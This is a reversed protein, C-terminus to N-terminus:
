AASASRRRALRMAAMIAAGCAMSFTSSPEPVIIFATVSGSPVTGGSGFDTATKPLTTVLVNTITPYVASISSYAVGNFTRTGPGSTTKAWFSYDANQVSGLLQADTQTTFFGGEFTDGTVISDVDFYVDVVNASSLSASNFPNVDTLRLVDNLAGSGSVAYNPASATLEFAARLGGTPDFMGATLIGPSNGPSVLGVGAIMAQMVGSGSLTGSSAVTVNSALTGNVLLTGADLLTGGSFTSSGALTLVGGGLKQLLGTGGVTQFTFDAGSAVNVTTNSGLNVDARIGHSGASVTLAAPITGSGVLTVPGSGNSPYIQYSGASSNFTMGALSPTAGNLFIAATGGTLASGFTATDTSSFGADLGPSGQNTGWNLGFANGSTGTLTGWNGSGNTAWTSQGSYVQGSVAVAVNPISGFEAAVVSTYTGNISGLTSGTGTLTYTATQPTTAGLFAASGATLGLAFGSPGGTFSGLTGSATTANLGTSTVGVSTGSVTAGQHLYGLALTSTSTTFVRQDVVQLSGSATSTTTISNTDTNIVSWGQTGASAGTQITGSVTTSAQPAVSNTGSGLNGVTLTGGSSLSIALNSGGVQTSNTISGSVAVTTGVLARTVAGTTMTFTTAQNAKRQADVENANVSGYRILYNSDLGTVTGFTGTLSSGAILRYLSATLATNGLDLTSPAGNLVVSGTASLMLTSTQSITPTLRITGGSGSFALGGISNTFTGTSLVGVGGNGGAFTGGITVLSNSPIANSIGLALTGSSNIYTPGTYSGTTSLTTLGNQVALDSNALTGTIQGTVTIGQAGGWLRLVTGNKTLTGSLTLLGSGANQITDTGNGLANVNKGLTGSVGTYQLIGSSTSAVGLNVTTNTGLSQIATALGVTSIALTGNQVNTTGSYANNGSLTVTQATTKTLGASGSLVSSGSVSGYALQYGNGGTGTTITGSGVIAGATGSNGLTFTPANTGLSENFGALDFTGGVVAVNPSAIANAVGLRLTGGNVNTQGSYTNVVGLVLTGAGTKFLQSGGAITGGITLTKTADVDYTAAANQTIPKTLTLDASANLTTAATFSLPATGSGLSAASSVSLIGGSMTTTGTYTNLGTLTQTGTGSKTLNLSGATGNVLTGAFSSSGSAVNLTLTSVTANGDEVTGSGTLGAITPSFGNLRLTAGSAVSVANSGSPNLANANGLQLVGGNVALGGNFSNSGALVLTGLYEKSLPFTGTIPANITVTGITAANTNVAGVQIALSGSLTPYTGNVVIPQTASDDYNFIMSGASPLTVATSSITLTGSRTSIGGGSNVTITNNPTFSGTAATATFFVLYGGSNVTVASGNINAPANAFIRGANITVNGITNTGPSSIVLDNGGNKVLGGGGTISGTLTIGGSADFVGGGSGLSIPRALSANGSISQLTAGNTFTMTGTAGSFVNTTGIAVTGGSFSSNGTATGTGSLTLKGAGDKIIGGTGIAITNSVTIDGAGGFSLNVNTGGVTGSLTLLNADSNIRSAAALTIAGAYSNTGSISRLAGTGGIGSGSLSLAETGVAIGGQIELAAGATVTTNGATTGLATANRINVVGATIGTTGTYTSAASLVLTSSGTKTVSTGSLSGTLFATYGTSGGVTLTSFSGTTGIAGMSINASNANISLTSGNPNTVPGLQLTYGNGGTINLVTAATAFGAPAFGITGGTTAGSLSAVDLTVTASGVGGLNNGGAFTVNSDSRLQLTGGSNLIFPQVVTGSQELSLAFSTGSATNSPNAQLQLAGGNVTTQFSTSAARGNSGSMILTGASVVISSGSTMTVPGSLTVTGAGDKTVGATGLNVTGSITTNGAGGVTLGLNSSTVNGSVTLLNADSNIRSATALTVNGGYSNTGSINRLAGDNSVGSGSLSLAESGVAIGGQLQLAAGSSVTSSGATGGLALANQINLAGASITTTGTHTNAGSLTFTGSGVKTLGGSGSLAGAYSTSSNASGTTLTFGGLAVDAGGALSGFAENGGLVLAGGSSGNVVISGTATFRSASGLTLTGSNLNLATVGATGNLASNATVTMSGTGVNAAVTGGGIAYSAATLTGSGTLSGSTITFSGVTDSFTGTSFVGGAVAVTTSGSLINSAGLALVGANVQTTGGYTSTGSLTFTGSGVKTLGGAGSLVGSYTGSSNLGGTTLTGANVAINAAGALSGFTESGALTLGSASSGTVALASTGTLRGASGLTLTGSNLSLATVDATGNLVSNATVTMSGTGLNGAVTGGGLTYSAATLTGSGTLSGSSITFSSVTDSNAGLALNGGSVTVATSASLVGSSGLSLQGASVTTAGTYTNTASLTVTGSTTKTLSTGTGSLIASVLGSSVTFSTGSLVGTTGQITGSTLTVLGVSDSFGAIDLVGGNLTVDGSGLANSAGFALIGGTVSTLGTFTNAASLTLTGTGDKTLAGSGLGLTGSITTNGAGGVTLGLNSSTVNGSVTLLNADSNIRSATALTVNGGYSNTGSINRLAGDNSVGSGSLSLAESGVAIGGQLQLAAGSSVTSSGATGGLALANQINLAGASITTTGTYTNSGSLTTTGSGAQAVNIAGGIVTGQTIANSRNFALAAGASGTILGTAGLSGTTGSGGIQLVGAAITTTGTYTNSGTFTTTGSGAKTFGVTGSGNTIVGAFTTNTAANSTLTVSGATNSTIVSVSGTGSAALGAGTGSLAGISVSYGNLDLSGDIIDLDSGNGLATASGIKITGNGSNAAPSPEGGITTQGTYTNSGTLVLTGGDAKTLGGSGSVIGSLTLTNGGFTRVFGNSGGLVIAYGLTADGGGQLLGGGNLLITNSANGFASTNSAFVLGSTITTTGSYTNTGTLATYQGNAANVKDGNAAITLGGSGSILGSYTVIGAAGTNTAATSTLTGGGSGLTISKDVTFGTASGSDIVLGGGDLTVGSTSGLSSNADISISGANVQTAGSYSNSGTIRFVGTGTKVLGNTGSITGSLTVTGSSAAQFTGSTAATGGLLINFSISQNSASSNSIVGRLTVASGSITFAGAGSGFSMNTLVLGGVNNVNTTRANNNIFLSYTGSTAPPAALWNNNASWNTNGAGATGQWTLATQAQAAGDGLMVALCIVALASANLLRFSVFFASLRSLM